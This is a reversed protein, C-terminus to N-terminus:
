RTVSIGKPAALMAGRPLQFRIERNAFDIRVRRFLKLTDMGLLLAPQDILGFRRFPLADAFAVPINNMVVDGLSVRSIQTYDANLYTGTVSMMSIPTMPKARRSVKRQLAPNGMTIASGTDVIVRVRTNGYYADTVVLQGFLSKARVVIEDHSSFSKPRRKTSPTVAMQQKDFDIAVAHNQLTDIGLMGPAGLHAGELMPAEIKKGGIEGLSISPIIVTGVNVSDAMAILRVNRGPPLGLTTALQRSIVTRQAGTDVIFRYPGSDAITVPVTMRTGEDGFAVIIPAAQSAPPPEAIPQPAPIPTAAAAAALLLSASAMSM